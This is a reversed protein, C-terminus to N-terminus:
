EYRLCGINDSGDQTHILLGMLAGRVVDVVCGMVVLGIRPITGVGKSKYYKVGGMCCGARSGDIYILILVHHNFHHEM